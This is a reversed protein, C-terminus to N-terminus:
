HFVFQEYKFFLRFTPFGFLVLFIQLLCFLNIKSEYIIEIDNLTNNQYEIGDKPNVMFM